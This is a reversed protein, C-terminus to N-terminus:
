DWLTGLSRRLATADGGMSFAVLDRAVPRTLVAALAVRGPTRLAEGLGAETIAVADLSARLDGSALFAARAETRLAADVFADLAVAPARSLAEEHDDLSKKRKRDIARRARVEYDPVLPEVRDRPVGELSPAVQRAFAVLIALTEEGSLAGLWPIGLAIRALPRALAAIAHPEPWDGLSSPAIVWNVDECAVIPAMVHDSVALEVEFLEFTRCLRDFVQRVPHVAKPKVREKTSSGRESLGIRALKGALGGAIAAVDWIPHKGFGGPMVFSRLTSGSLAESNSVYMARRARLSAQGAEDLDGAIARLEKAVLAQQTRGAGTFAEDLQRVFSVDVLGGGSSDLLPTLAAAATEHRGKKSLARALALRAPERFPELSLAEEFHGIADDLRGLGLELEGLSALWEAGPAAGAERARAVARGMIRAAAEASGGAAARLRGLMAADPALAAAEVLAGEAGGEDGLERRVTALELLAALRERPRTEAVVLRSLLEAREKPTIEVPLALLARLARLEHPDLELAARLEKEADAPRGLVRGLISARGVRAILKEGRESTCNVVDGLARLAEDWTRQGIYLEALLLLTPVHDSKIERSRELAEIALVPDHLHTKAVEALEAAMPVVADASRAAFLGRRLARALDSWAGQDALLQALRAAVLVADPDAELARELLQAAGKVDGEAASLDAADRLLSARAGMSRAVDALSSAALVAGRRDGMEAAVLALLVAASTSSPDIALADRCSRSADRLAGNHHQHHALEIRLLLRESDDAASELRRQTAEIALALAPRDGSAIRARARRVLDDLVVADRSGLAVLRDWPSLDDGEPLTWAVVAALASLARLALTGSTVDAALALANALQPASRAPRALREAVRLTMFDRAGSSLLTEATTREAARGTDLSRVAATLPPVPPSGEGTPVTARAGLRLLRETVLLEDPRAERALLYLRVAEEGGTATREALEAARLLSAVRTDADASDAALKELWSRLADQDGKAELSGIIASAIAPDDPAIERAAELTALARDPDALRQAFVAAEALALALKANKKREAARRAALSSAVLEWRGANSHLRTVLERAHMAFSGHPGKAVSEALALAREPDVDTLAEAARLRVDTKAEDNESVEAEALLARALKKGDRARAAASALGAIASRRHPDIALVDEYARAALEADGAVDDWLWAIKELYHLRKGSDSVREAAKAYLEVRAAVAERSGAAALRESLADFVGPAAPDALWAAERHRAADVERGAAASADAAVLLARTKARTDDALAAERMWLVARADHRGAGVLLRDLEELITADDADLVRARELALVAEPLAGAREATAAVARLALLEVRPGSIMALANKRVRLAEPHRGAKDLLRALEEAVRTDVVKSTRGRAHAHELLKLARAEDGADLHARAGDLELCAARAPDKELGAESELLSGLRADDRHVVVHDVFAQRVPGIGPALEVARELAARATGADGLRRDFILAREVHLWASALSEGALGALRGLLAALEPWRGTAELAAELGALAGAHDPVLALAAAYAAASEVSAGSRAELLRGKEALFDARVLTDSVHAVLHEVHALQAEIAAPERGAELTRLLAHAPPAHEVLSAALKASARADDIKGDALEAHALELHARLAAVPDADPALAAARARLLSTVLTEGEHDEFSIGDDLLDRPAPLTLTARELPPAVVGHTGTLMAATRANAAADLISLRDATISASDDDVLASSDLTVM